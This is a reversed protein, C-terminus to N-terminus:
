TANNGIEQQTSRKDWLFYAIAAVVYLLTIITLLLLEGEGNNFDAFTPITLNFVFHIWIPIFLNRCKRYCVAIVMGMALCFTLFCLAYQLWAWGEHGSDFVMLPMHWVWWISGVILTSRLLSNKKEMTTQLFGRWGSEEGTAGQTAATFLCMGLNGASLNLLSMFSVSKSVAVLSVSLIFILVQVLTVGLVIRWNIRERFAQRYFEKVTIGPYLKMFMLLLMITPSWSASAYVLLFIIGNGFLQLVFLVPIAM